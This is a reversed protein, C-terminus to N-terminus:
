CDLDDDSGLEGQDLQVSRGPNADNGSGFGFAINDQKGDVNTEREGPQSGVSAYRSHTSNLSDLAAADDEVEEAKEEEEALEDEEEVMSGLGSGGLSMGVPLAGMTTGSDRRVKRAPAVDDGDGDGGGGGDGAGDKGKEQGGVVLYELNVDTGNGNGGEAMAEEEDEEAFSMAPLGSLGTASMGFGSGGGKALPSSARKGAGKVNGVPGSKVTGSDRRSPASALLPPAPAPRSPISADSPAVASNDDNSTGSPEVSCRAAKAATGGEEFSTGSPVNGYEGANECKGEFGQLQAVYNM